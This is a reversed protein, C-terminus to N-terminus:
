GRCRLASVLGDYLSADQVDDTLVGALIQLRRLDRCDALRVPDVEGYATVAANTLTQSALDWEVPGACVDEFDTWRPGDDTLLVNGTHADGHLPRRPWTEAIRLLTGAAAHLVADDSLELASRIDTIPGVLSPLPVPYDALLRHLDRLMPGYESMSITGTRQEVWTWLSIHLGDVVFPGPQEWAPTIPAGAAALYRAVEVERRLWPGPDGRLTQGLTFVRSLAPAPELRIRVSYGEAIVRPQEAPLGLQRALKVTAAVAQETTPLAKDARVIRSERDPGTM